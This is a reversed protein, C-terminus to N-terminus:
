DKNIGHMESQIEGRRITNQRVDKFMTINEANAHHYGLLINVNVCNEPIKKKKIQEAEVTLTLQIHYM